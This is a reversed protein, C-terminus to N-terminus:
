GHKNSSIRFVLNYRKLNRVESDLVTIYIMELGIKLFLISYKFFSFNMRICGFIVDLAVM